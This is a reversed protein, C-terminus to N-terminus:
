FRIGFLRGSEDQDNLRLRVLNEIDFTESFDSQPLTDSNLMCIYQFKRTRSESWVRELARAVQREDVGDFIASDHVLLRPSPSRTAWLQALMLDYCFTKMKDIGRSGSREIGVDFQFGSKGVNVILSGPAEYLAQSNSNFLEIARRRNPERIALDARARKLLNAMDIECDIRDNELRRRAELRQNVVELEAVAKAHFQQLSSYEELAGHGKLAQLLSARADSRQRTQIRSNAIWKTLRNIEQNLFRKRNSLITRRFQVVDELRRLAVGPLEMGASDYLKYVKDQSRAAEEVLREEQQLDDKYLDLIRENVVRSEVIRHIEETLRNAQETLEDYEPHVRFKQLRDAQAQVKNELRLRLAELEGISGASSRLTDKSDMNELNPLRLNRDKIEHFEIAHQYELGLLFSNNIQTEVGRQKRHHEFPSDFAGSSRRITYSILSRFSPQEPQQSELPLGYILHGLTLKWENVPVAFEGSISTQSSGLPLGSTEGGVLVVRPHGTNRAVSLVRGDIELDIAFTWEKLEKSALVSGNSRNSGLCYHIIEIISSKGLGNRSQRESEQSTRDALIINMGSTFEVCRFTPRDCRIALIM